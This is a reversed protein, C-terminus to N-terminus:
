VNRLLCYPKFGKLSAPRAKALELAQAPTLWQGPNPSAKAPDSLDVKYVDLGRAKDNSYAYFVGDRDVFPAKFSWSNSSGEDVPVDLTGSDAFYHFALEKMGAVGPLEGLAVGILNALDVVRVGGQYYSITMIAEDAHIDFVHATCSLNRSFARADDINWYGVKAPALELPGTIDYIHVGGNPCQGTGTAGAVEDEVVLFTREGLVPHDLTVPDSQHWVNIAPDVFSTIIEPNGPDETDIILGQSLAASYARSGDANFTIDHSDTGLGPRPVIPITAVQTPSAFDRIDYVEISATAAGTILDSNSNYFFDGSPHVTGNHSGKPVKVYSVTFPAYPNSIDAIFTGEDNVTFGLAEAETFCASARRGSYGDDWTFTAFTQELGDPGPRKFVQVDGQSIGCDYVGAVFPDTPDTIDFLHMGNNYSGAVNYLRQIGPLEANGDEVNGERKALESVADGSLTIEVFEMDTGNNAANQHRAEYGFNAMHEINDSGVGPAAAQDAAVDVAAGAGAAPVLGAFLGLALLFRLPSRLM